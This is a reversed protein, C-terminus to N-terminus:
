LRKRHRQEPRSDYGYQRESSGTVSLRRPCHGRVAEVSSELATSTGHTVESIKPNRM